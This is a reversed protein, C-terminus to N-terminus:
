QAEGDVLCIQRKIFKGLNEYIGFIFRASDSESLNYDRGGFHITKISYIMKKVRNKVYNDPSLYIVRKYLCREMALLHAAIIEKYRRQSKPQREIELAYMTPGVKLLGDPYKQSIAVPKKDKNVPPQFMIFQAGAREATIAITLIDQEHRYNQPAIRGRGEPLPDPLDEGALFYAEAMGRSTPRYWSIPRPAVGVVTQELMLGDRAMGKLTTRASDTTIELLQGTTVVDIWGMRRCVDLVSARKEAQRQMREQHSMKIM